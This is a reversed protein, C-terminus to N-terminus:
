VTDQTVPWKAQGTMCHRSKRDVLGMRRDEDGTRRTEGGQQINLRDRNAGSFKGRQMDQKLGKKNV